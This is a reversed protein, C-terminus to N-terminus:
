NPTSESRSLCRRATTIFGTHGIMRHSPRVSRGGIDWTREMTEITKISTFEPMKRLCEVLDSVQIITPLFTLLIGGYKLSNRIHDLTTWPEPVDLVVSDIETEDIGDNINKVKFTVNSSSAAFQDVNSRAMQSMDERIDYSYIRGSDGVADSLAITLSGSGSGAELVRAGPKINSYTIITGIDKPYVITAIRPMNLSIEYKTPRFVIVWSQKSTQFWTGEKRGILSSHALNGIHSEFVGNHAITFMYQRNRRDQLMAVDGVKFSIKDNNPQLSM